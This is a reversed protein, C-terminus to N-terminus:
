PSLRRIPRGHGRTGRRHPRFDEDGAARLAEVPLEARNTEGLFRILIHVREAAGVPGQFIGRLGALPGQDIIVTDGPKFSHKPLGGAAEIERLEAEIMAIAKDPVVAPRGGFSLIRRLGPIWQLNDLGVATLDCRVFLYAPFLARIRGDARTPLLPLFATFGRATLTRAVQAEANPKTHLAYWAEMSHHEITLTQYTAAPYRQSGCPLM